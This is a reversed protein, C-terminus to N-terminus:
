PSAFSPLDLLPEVGEDTPRGLFALFGTAISLKAINQPHLHSCCSSSLSSCFLVLSEIKWEPIVLINKVLFFGSNKKTKTFILPHPHRNENANEEQLFWHFCNPRPAALILKHAKSRGTAVALAVNYPCALNDVFNWSNPHWLPQTIKQNPKTPTPDILNDVPSHSRQYGKLIPFSVGKITSIKHKSCAVSFHVLIFYSYSWDPARDWIM